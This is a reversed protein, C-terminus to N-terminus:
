YTEPLEGKAFLTHFSQELGSRRTNGGPPRLQSLDPLMAPFGLWGRLLSRGDETDSAMLKRITKMLRYRFECVYPDNLDLVRICDVGEPTLGEMSGNENVRLHDAMPTTCPNLVSHEGKLSNCRGCAYVLNDYETILSPDIIQPVFHDIGFMGYGYQSWQERDLCYVCRFTFEDRLWPKYARYDIYGEPGHRRSHSTTPYAYCTM